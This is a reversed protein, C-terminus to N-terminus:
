IEYENEKKEHAGTFFPCVVNIPLAGLRDANM